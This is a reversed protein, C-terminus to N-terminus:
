SDVPALTKKALAAKGRECPMGTKKYEACTQATPVAELREKLVLVGCVKCMGFTGENVRQLADDLQNLYKGERSAFLFTKEREMADTGQEMHLSYTSNESVYEGTTVDMMSERLAELEEIIEKRRELIMEKFRGLDRKSFGNKPGLPVVPKVSMAATQKPQTKDSGSKRKPLKGATVKKGM